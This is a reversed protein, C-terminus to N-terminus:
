CTWRTAQGAQRDPLQDPGLGEKFPFVLVSALNGRIASTKM